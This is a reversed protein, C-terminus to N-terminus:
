NLTTYSLDSKRVKGSSFNKENIAYMIVFADITGALLAFGLTTSIERM